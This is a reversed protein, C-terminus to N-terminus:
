CLPLLVGQGFVMEQGRGWSTPRSRSSCYLVICLRGCHVICHVISGSVICCEESWVPISSNAASRQHCVLFLSILIYTFYILVSRAVCQMLLVFVTNLKPEFSGWCDKSVKSVPMQLVFIHQMSSWVPCRLNYSEWDQGVFLDSM